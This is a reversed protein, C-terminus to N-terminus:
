RPNIMKTQIIFILKYIAYMKHKLFFLAFNRLKNSSISGEIVKNYLELDSFLKKLPIKMNIALNPISFYLAVIYEEFFLHYVNEFEPLTKLALLEDVIKLMDYCRNVDNISTISRKRKVYNYCVEDIVMMKNAFLIALPTFLMDEHLIGEKFWLKNTELYAKKYIYSWVTYNFKRKEELWKEGSIVASNYTNIKAVVIENGNIISNNFGLLDLDMEECINILTKIKLSVMTDDGDCFCIYKGRAVSLGKNRTSSLGLNNQNCIKINPYNKAYNKLISLSNDTSGDNICIIEYDSFSIDQNLLSQLCDSIYNDVNYVPVIISLIM